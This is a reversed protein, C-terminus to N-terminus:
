LTLATLMLILSTKSTHLRLHIKAISSEKLAWKARDIIRTKITELTQELESFVSVCDTFVVVAQKIMILSEPSKCAKQPGSSVGAISQSVSRHRYSGASCKASHCDCRQHSQCFSESAWISACSCNDIGRDLCFYFLPRHSNVHRYPHPLIQCERRM